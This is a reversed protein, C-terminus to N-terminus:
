SIALAIHRPPPVMEYLVGDIRYRMKFENEFPEFHIDSAKDRIAQLLVLNLLKKVPNSDVLEKLEELDISEGRGEFKSLTEDSSLEDLLANISEGGEEPYYRALASTIDDPTALFARVQFGMLTKLDDTAQFNDPSDMAVDLRQLAEDYQIPIVRYTNAMQAPILDVVSKSVEMRGLEVTEMGVQAALASRLVDETIHGLEILIRGIPGRRERQIELADRLQERDVAGMKELVRGLKRGRLQDIPPMKTVKDAM